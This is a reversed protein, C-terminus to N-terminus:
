AKEYQTLQITGGSLMILMDGKYVTLLVTLARFVYSFLSTEKTILIFSLKSNNNLYKYVPLM